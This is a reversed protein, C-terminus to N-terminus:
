RLRRAICVDAKAIDSISRGGRRRPAKTAKALVRSMRFLPASTPPTRAKTSCNRISTPNTTALPQPAVHVAPQQDSLIRVTTGPLGLTVRSFGVETGDQLHLESAQLDIGLDGRLSGAGPADFSGAVNDLQLNGTALQGRGFLPHALDLGTLAGTAALSAEIRGATFLGVDADHIALDIRGAQSTFGLPGLYREIKTVEIGTIGADAYLEIKDAFPKAIGSATLGIDNLEADLRYHGPHDPAWNRFGGLDLQRVHMVAEGGRADIFAVRSDLIQLSGLGVGWGLEEQM